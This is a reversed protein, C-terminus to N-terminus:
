HCGGCSGCNGGRSHEEYDATDPDAGDACQSIIASIRNLVADLDQKAANYAQMSDNQMIQGYLLRIENNLEELKKEDREDKNAENNIAMRKLNFDGIMNQLVADGDCAESAKRMALYREDKQLERGIERALEIMDM